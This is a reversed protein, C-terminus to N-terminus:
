VLFHMRRQEVFKREFVADIVFDAHDQLGIRLFHPAAAGVILLHEALHFVFQHPFVLSHKLASRRQVRNSKQAREQRGIRKIQESNWLNGANANRRENRGVAYHVARYLLMARFNIWEAQSAQRLIAIRIFQARFLASSGRIWDSAASSRRIGPPALLASSAEGKARNSRMRPMSLGSSAWFNRVGESAWRCEGYAIVPICIATSRRTDAMSRFSPMRM